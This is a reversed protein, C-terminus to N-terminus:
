RVAPGARSGTVLDDREVVAVLVGDDTVLLAHVHDDALLVRAPGVATTLSHPM